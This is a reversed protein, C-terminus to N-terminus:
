LADLAHQVMGLVRERATRAADLYTGVLTHGSADSKSVPLNINVSPVSTLGQVRLGNIVLDIDALLHDGRLTPSAPAVHVVGAPTNPHSSRLGDYAPNVFLNGQSHAILLFANGEDALGNLKSLQSAMDAETPPNSLLQSVWSLINGLMANFTADLLQGLVLGDAGLGSQLTGTLSNSATYRGTLLEWFHEWRNGLVGNLEKGRQIFVEAIDQLATNGNNSGTQNYFNQYNLETNKYTLGILEKLARLGDDAQDRTNWVGNFFGVVVPKTPAICANGSETYGAECSCSTKGYVSIIGFSHAPCISKFADITIDIPFWAGGTLQYRIHCAQMPDDVSDLVVPKPALAQAYSALGDACLANLETYERSDWGGQYLKFRYISQGPFYALAPSLCLVYLALAM